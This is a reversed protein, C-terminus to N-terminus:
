LQRVEIAPQLDVPIDSLSDPSYFAAIRVWYVQRMRKVSLKGLTAQIDEISGLQGYEPTLESAIEYTADLPM